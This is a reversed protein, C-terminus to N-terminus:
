YESGCWQQETNVLSLMPSPRKPVFLGRQTCRRRYYMVGAIVVSGFFVTIAANAMTSGHNGVSEHTLHQSSKEEQVILVPEHATVLSLDVDGDKTTLHRKFKSSCGPVCSSEDGKCVYASCHFYLEGYPVMADQPGTFVFTKVEFRKYRSSLLVGPFEGMPHLVTQYDDGSFPCHNDLVRWQVSNFPDLTPTAWCDQLVLVLSPDPHDLLRVELFIPDRLFKVVPFQSYYDLYRGDRAIRLELYLPGAGTVPRPPPLTAVAVGLQLDDKGHFRCQLVLKYTASNTIAINGDVCLEHDAILQTEYVLEEGVWRATAGCSSMSFNFVVFDTSTVVAGCSQRDGPLHVTSLNLPPSTVHRSVAIVFRGDSTCVPEGYFCAQQVPDYCCGRQVCEDRTAPAFGCLLMGNEPTCTAAAAAARGAGARLSRMHMPCRVTFTWDRQKQGLWNEELKITLMRQEHKTKVNCASNPATFQMCGPHRELRYGCEEALSEAPVDANQADLLLVRYSTGSGGGQWFFFGVTTPHCMVELNKPAGTLLARASSSPSKAHSLLKGVLSWVAVRLLVGALSLSGM